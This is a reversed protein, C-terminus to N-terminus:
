EARTERLRKRLEDLLEPSLLKLASDADISHGCAACDLKLSTPTESELEIADEGCRPCDLSIPRISAM